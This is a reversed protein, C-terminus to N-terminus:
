HFNVSMRVRNTASAVNSVVVYMITDGPSVSVSNVLNAGTTGAAVVAATMGTTCTLATAVGNKYLTVIVQYATAAFVNLRVNLNNITGASPVTQESIIEPQSAGTASSSGGSIPVHYNTSAPSILSQFIVQYPIAVWAGDGRLYESSSATGSGLRATNVTGSALNSASLNTLLSGDVAPLQSSANLQILQSAGNFTNGQLTVNANSSNHIYIWTSGNYYYFGPTGATQYVLLGNVPTTVSSTLAVRPILIGKDTAKVDLMASGDAVAGDTNIAVGSQATLKNASTIGIFFIFSLLIKKM